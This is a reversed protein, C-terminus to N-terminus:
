TLANLMLALDAKRIIIEAQIEREVDDIYPQPKQGEVFRTFVTGEGLKEFAMVNGNLPVIASGDYHIGTGEHVYRPYEPDEGYKLGFIPHIGIDITYGYPTKNVRGKSLARLTRGSKFPIHRAFADEAFNAIDHLWERIILDAKPEDLFGFFDEDDFEFQLKSFEFM